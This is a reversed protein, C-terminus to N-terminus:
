GLKAKLKARQDEIETLQARAIELNRTTDDLAKATKALELQKAGVEEVLADIKAQESAKIMSAAAFADAKTSDADAQAAARIRAAEEHSADVLAKGELHKQEVHQTTALHQAESEAKLSELTTQQTAVGADLEAKRREVADAMQELSEVDQLDRFVAVMGQFQAGLRKTEEFARKSSRIRM